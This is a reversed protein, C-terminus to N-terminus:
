AFHAPLTHTEGISSVLLKRWWIRGGVLFNVLYAENYQVTISDSCYRYLHKQKSLQSICNQIFQLTFLSTHSFYMDMLFVRTLWSSIPCFLFTLM